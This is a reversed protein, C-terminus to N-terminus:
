SINAIADIKVGAKRALNGVTCIKDASAVLTEAKAIDSESAGQPLVVNATHTISFDEDGANAETDVSLSVIDLKKGEIMATLTSIFCTATSAVFLEKPNSDTGQGGYVSPITVTASFNDSKVEGKGSKGGIWTSQLNINM